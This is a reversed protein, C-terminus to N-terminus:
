SHIKIQEIWRWVMMLVEELWLMICDLWELLQELPHKVYGITTADTEIWAAASELETDRSCEQGSKLQLQSMVALQHTPTAATKAARWIRTLMSVSLKGFPLAMIRRAVQSTKQNLSGSIRQSSQGEPELDGFLDSFTLWPERDSSVLHPLVQPSFETAMHQRDLLNRAPAPTATTALTPQQHRSGFFYDIAAWILAAIRFTHNEAKEAAVSTSSHHQKQTRVQRSITQSSGLTKVVASLALHNSELEAFTRDLFPLLTHLLSDERQHTLRQCRWYNAVERVIREQLEQQQQDTLIDLTENRATVLVLTRSLLQTAIGRILPRNHILSSNRLPPSPPLPPAGRRIFGLVPSLSAKDTRAERKGSLDQRRDGFIFKPILLRMVPLNIFEGKRGHVEAGRSAKNAEELPLADVLLLVRQIPVDVTSFQPRADEVAQHMQRSPKRNPQFLLYLPYLVVPAVWSTAVQIHRLARQCQETVRRSHRHIFNFLRSQYRGSSASSM